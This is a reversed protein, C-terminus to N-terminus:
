TKAEGGRARILAQANPIFVMGDNESGKMVYLTDLAKACKEREEEVGRKYAEYEGEAYAAQITSEMDAVADAVASAIIEKMQDTTQNSCCGCGIDLSDLIKEAREQPTMSVPKEPNM